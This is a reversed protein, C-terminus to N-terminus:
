APAITVFTVLSIPCVDNEYHESLLKERIMAHIGWCHVIPSFHLLMSVLKTLNLPVGGGWVPM